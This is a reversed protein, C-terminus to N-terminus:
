QQPIPTDGFDQMFLMSNIVNIQCGSGFHYVRLEITGNTNVTLTGFTTNQGSTNNDACIVSGNIEISTEPRLGTDENLKVTSFSNNSSNTVGVTGYIKAVTGNSNKAVYLKYGNPISGTGETIAFNNTGTTYETFTTLTLYSALNNVKTNATSADSVAQSAVGATTGLSTNVENVASVLDTKATTNLNALTGVSNIATTANTSASTASDANAKMQTDIASLAGNVDTLWTPKDTGIFQPLNYNTTHNTASM